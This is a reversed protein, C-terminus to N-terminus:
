AELFKEYLPIAAECDGSLREAQAWNFLIERRPDIRYAAELERIADLYRKDGYAELGRDVHERAAPALARDAVAPRPGAMCVSAVVAILGLERCPCRRMTM